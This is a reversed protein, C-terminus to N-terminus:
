RCFDPDPELRMSRSRQCLRQATGELRAANASKGATLTPRKPRNLTIVTETWTGTVRYMMEAAAACLGDLFGQLDEAAVLACLREGDSIGAGATM